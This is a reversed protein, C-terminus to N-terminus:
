IVMRSRVNGHMVDFSWTDVAVGTELNRQNTSSPFGLFHHQPLM